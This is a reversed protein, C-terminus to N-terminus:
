VCFSLQMVVSGFTLRRLEREFEESIKLAIVTERESHNQYKGRLEIVHLLAPSDIYTLPQSRLHIQPLHITLRM